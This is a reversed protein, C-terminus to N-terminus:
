RGEVVLRVPVSPRRRAEEVKAIRRVLAAAAVERDTVACWALLSRLAPLPDAGDKGHAVDHCRGHTPAMTEQREESRRSSGGILHHAHMVAVHVPGGCIVCRGGSEKHLALRIARLRELREGKTTAKKAKGEARKPATRARAKRKDSRKREEWEHLFARGEPSNRLFKAIERDM